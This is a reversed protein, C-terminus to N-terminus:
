DPVVVTDGPRLYIAPLASKMADRYNFPIMQDGAPDKRLIRIKKADAFDKLGGAVALAQLVTLPSTLSVAGPHNVEGMVYATATAAEVVIVTVTPNTIYEKLATGIGDRLEMPTRGSAMVDGILPLTVKGDPRIQVSQSLQADKYVEIRLKDGASMRYEQPLASATASASAAAAAKKDAAADRPRAAATRPVAVGFAAIAALCLLTSMQKM